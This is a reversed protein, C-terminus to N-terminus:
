PGGAAATRVAEALVRLEAVLVDDDCRPYEGASGEATEPSRGARILDEAAQSAVQTMQRHAEALLDVSELGDPLQLSLVSALQRVKEEVGHLLSELAEAPANRYDRGFDLLEKLASAKGDALLQAM